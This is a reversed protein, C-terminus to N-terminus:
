QPDTGYPDDDFQRKLSAIKSEIEESAESDTLPKIAEEMAELVKILRAQWIKM